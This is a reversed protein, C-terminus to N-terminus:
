QRTKEKRTPHPPDPPLAGVLALALEAIRLLGLELEDSFEDEMAVRDDKIELTESVLEETNCEEKNGTNDETADCLAMGSGTGLTDEETIDKLLEETTVPKEDLLDDTVLKDGTVELTGGVQELEDSIFRDEAFLEDESADDSNDEAHLEDDTTLEDSDDERRLEDNATTLEEASNDETGLEDDTTLEEDSDDENRM